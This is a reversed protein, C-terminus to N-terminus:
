IMSYMILIEEDTAVLGGVPKWAISYINGTHDNRQVVQNFAQEGDWVRLTKGVGGALFQGDPSWSFDYVIGGAYQDLLPQGFISHAVYVRSGASFDTTANTPNPEATPALMWVNTLIAVYTAHAHM